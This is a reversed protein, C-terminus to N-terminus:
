CPLLLSAQICVDSASGYQKFNVCHLPRGPLAPLMCADRSHIYATLTVTVCARIPYVYKVHLLKSIM